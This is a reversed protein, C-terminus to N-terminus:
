EFFQIFKKLKLQIFEKIGDWPQTKDTIYLFSDESDSWVTM